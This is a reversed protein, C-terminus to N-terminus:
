LVWGSSSACFAGSASVFTSKGSQDLSPQHNHNEASMERKRTSSKVTQRDSESEKSLVCCTRCPHGISSSSYFLQQGRVSRITPHATQWTESPRLISVSHRLEDIPVFIFDSRIVIIYLYFITGIIGHHVTVCYNHSLITM